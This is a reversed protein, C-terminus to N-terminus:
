GLLGDLVGDAAEVVAGLARGWWPGSAPPPPPPVGSVVLPAEGLRRGAASLRVGGIM